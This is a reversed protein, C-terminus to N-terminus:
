SFASNNRLLSEILVLSSSAEEFTRFFRWASFFFVLSYERSDSLSFSSSTSSKMPSPWIGLILFCFVFAVSETLAVFGGRDEFDGCFVGCLDGGRVGGVKSGLDGGFFVADFEVTASAIASICRWIAVSVSAFRLDAFVLRNTTVPTLPSVFFMTSSINPLFKTLHDKATVHKKNVSSSIM